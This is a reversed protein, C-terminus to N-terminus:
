GAQVDEEGGLLGAEDSRFDEAHRSAHVQGSASMRPAPFPPAGKKNGPLCRDKRCSPRKVKQGGKGPEPSPLKRREPAPGPPM